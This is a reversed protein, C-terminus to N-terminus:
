PDLDKITENTERQQDFAAIKRWVFINQPRKLTCKPTDPQSKHSHRHVHLETHTGSCIYIQRNTNEDAHTNDTCAM